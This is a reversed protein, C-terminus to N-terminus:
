IGFAAEGGSDRRGPNRGRNRKGKEESLTTGVRPIGLGVRPIRLGQHM